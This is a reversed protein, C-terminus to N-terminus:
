GQFDAVAIVNGPVDSDPARWRLNPFAAMAEDPTAFTQTAQHAAIEGQEFRVLYSGTADMTLVATHDAM